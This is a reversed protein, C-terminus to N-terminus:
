IVHCGGGRLGTCTFMVSISAYILEQSLDNVFFLHAIVDEDLYRTILTASKKSQEETKEEEGDEGNVYDLCGINDLEGSVMVEWVFYNKDTLVIRRHTSQTEASKDM